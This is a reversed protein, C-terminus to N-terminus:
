HLKFVIYATIFVDHATPQIQLHLVQVYPPSVTTRQHLFPKQAYEQWESHFFCPWLSYRVDTEEFVKERTMIIEAGNSYKGPCGIIIISGGVKDIVHSLGIAAGISMAANANNGFVHGSEDGTSYKCIFCVEPHGTGIQAKFATSINQFNSEVKFNYKRLLNTIYECSKYENFCNESIDYLYKNLSFIDEKITCLFSLINQKM